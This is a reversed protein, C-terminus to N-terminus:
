CPSEPTLPAVYQVKRDQVEPTLPQVARDDHWSSHRRRHYHHHHIVFIISLVPGDVLRPRPAHLLCQKANPDEHQHTIALPAPRLPTRPHPSPPHGQPAYPDEHQHTTDLPPYPCLSFPARTSPPATCAVRACSNIGPSQVAGRNWVMICVGDVSRLGQPAGKRHGPIQRQQAEDRRQRLFGQVEATIETGLYAPRSPLPKAQPPPLHQVEATVETRLYAPSPPLPRPSPPPECRAM